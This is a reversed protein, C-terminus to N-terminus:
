GADEDPAPPLKAALFDAVPPPVEALRSAAELPADEGCVATFPCFACDDPKPTRPFARAALLDHAIQLWRRGAELVVALESGEWAREADGHEDPYVYGVGQLPGWAAAGSARMAEAALGYVVLQIDLKPVPVAEDDAKPHARGTKYDRIFLGPGDATEVTDLRDIYGHVFLAAEGELALRVPEPYGFPQEVGAYTFGPREDWEQTLFRRVDERVRRRQQDRV